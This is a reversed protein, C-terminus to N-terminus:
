FRERGKDEPRMANTAIEGTELLQKLRRLDERAQQQPEVGMLSALMDGLAGAPADYALHLSLETGRGGPADRVQIVGAQRIESGAVSEWSYREEPADAVIRSIWTVQGGDPGQMVWRSRGDGLETVSVIRRSWRPFRELDRVHRWVEARPLAITESRQIKITGVPLVRGLGHAAERVLERGREPALGSVGYLALAGGATALGIGLPGGRRLGVLALASGGLLWPLRSQDIGHTLAAMAFGKM